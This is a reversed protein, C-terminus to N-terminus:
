GGIRRYLWTAAVYLLAALCWGIYRIRRAPEDGRRMANRHALALAIGLLVSAPLVMWFWVGMLSFGMHNGPFLSDLLREAPIFLVAGVGLAVLVAAIRSQPQTM